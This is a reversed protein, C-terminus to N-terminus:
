VPGRRRCNRCRGAPGTWGRPMLAEALQAAVDCPEGAVDAWGYRLTVLGGRLLLRNDRRMDRFPQDEHGLHGDLEAVVGHDAFYADSRTGAMLNSQLLPQPLGHATVVDRLFRWELPSEVGAAAPAVLDTLLTRHPLRQRAALAQRLKKPTTRTCRLASAVLEVLEDATREGALDLITTEVDTRPPEGRGHRQGRLFRLPLDDCRRKSGAGIWVAVEEPEARLGHLHAAAEM